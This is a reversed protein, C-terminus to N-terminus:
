VIFNQNNSGPIILITSPNTSVGDSTVSFSTGEVNVLINSITYEGNISSTASYTEEIDNTISILRGGVIAGAQNRTQGQLTALLRVPPQPQIQIQPPVLTFPPIWCSYQNCLRHCSM